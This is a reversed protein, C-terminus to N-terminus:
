GSTVYPESVKPVDYGMMEVRDLGQWWKIANVFGSLVFLTLCGVIWNILFRVKPSNEYKELMRVVWEGFDINFNM